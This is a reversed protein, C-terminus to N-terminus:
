EPTAHHPAHHRRARLLYFVTQRSRDGSSSIYQIGRRGNGNGPELRSNDLFPYIATTAFLNPQWQSTDGGVFGYFYEFGM